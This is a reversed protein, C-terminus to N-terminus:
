TVKSLFSKSRGQLLIYNCPNENATECNYYRKTNRCSVKHSCKNCVFPFKKLEPCFAPVFETCDGGIFKPKILCVRACHSCTKRGEKIYSNNVIERYISSASRNIRKATEELSLEREISAQISIRESLDIRKYTSM